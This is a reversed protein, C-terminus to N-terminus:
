SIESSFIENRCPNFLQTWCEPCSHSSSAVRNHIRNFPKPLCFALTALNLFPFFMNFWSPPPSLFRAHSLCTFLTLSLPNNRRLPPPRHNHTFPLFTHTSSPLTGVPSAGWWMWGGGMVYVGGMVCLGGTSRLPLDPPALLSSRGLPPSHPPIPSAGGAWMSRITLYSPGVKENTKEWLPIRWKIRIENSMWREVSNFGNSARRFFSKDNLTACDKVTWKNYLCYDKTFAYSLLVKGLGGFKYDM